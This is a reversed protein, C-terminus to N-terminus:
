HEVSDMKNSILTLHPKQTNHNLNWFRSEPIYGKVKSWHIPYGNKMFYLVNVKNELKLLKRCGSCGLVKLTIGQVQTKIPRLCEWKGLPKSCFYCGRTKPPKPRLVLCLKFKRLRKGRIHHKFQKINREFKQELTMALFYNVKLSNIDNDLNREILNLLNELLALNSEYQKLLSLDHVHEAVHGLDNSINAMSQVKLSLELFDVQDPVKARFVIVWLLCAIVLPAAFLVIGDLNNIIFSM